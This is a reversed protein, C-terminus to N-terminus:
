KIRGEILSAYGTVEEEDLGRGVKTVSLSVATDQKYFFIMYSVKIDFEPDSEVKKGMIGSENINFDVLVYGSQNLSDELTRLKENFYKKATKNADYKSISSDIEKETTTVNEGADVFDKKLVIRHNELWGQSKLEEGLSSNGAAFELPDKLAGTLIPNIYFGEPMDGLKLNMEEASNNTANIPVVEAPEVEEEEIVIGTPLEAKEEFPWIKESKLYFGGIAATIVLSAAGIALMKKANKEDVSRIAFYAVIGGFINFLVPVIFWFKSFPLEDARRLPRYIEGTAEHQSTQSQPPNYSPPVSERKSVKSADYAGSRAKAVLGRKINQFEELTIEGRKFSKIADELEAKLMRKVDDTLELKEEKAAVAPRKKDVGPKKTQIDAGCHGCFLDGKSYKAGCQKCEPM